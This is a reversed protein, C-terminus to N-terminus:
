YSFGSVSFRLFLSLDDFIAFTIAEPSGTRVDAQVLPVPKGLDKGRIAMAKLPFLQDVEVAICMWLFM